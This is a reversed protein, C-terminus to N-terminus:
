STNVDNNPFQHLIDPIVLSEYENLAEHSMEIVAYIITAM